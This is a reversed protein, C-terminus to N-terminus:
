ARSNSMWAKTNRYSDLHLKLAVNIQDKHNWKRALNEALVMAIRKDIKQLNQNNRSEREYLELAEARLQAPWYTYINAIRNIEQNMLLGATNPNASTSNTSDRTCVAKPEIAVKYGAARVSFGLACCNYSKFGSPHFLDSGRMDFTDQAAQLAKVRYLAGGSCPAWIASNEGSTDVSIIADRHVNHGFDLCAGSPGLFHGLGHIKSSNALHLTVVMGVKDSSEAKTLAFRLWDADALARVTMTALWSFGEDKAFNVALNFSPNFGRNRGLSHCSRYDFWARGPRAVIRYIQESSDSDVVLLKGPQLGSRDVAALYEPLRECDGEHVMCAWLVSNDRM